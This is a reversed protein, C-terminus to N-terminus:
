FKFINFINENRLDTAFNVLRRIKFVGFFSAKPGWLADTASFAM